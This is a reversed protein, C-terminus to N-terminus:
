DMRLVELCNPVSRILKAGKAQLAICGASGDNYVFLPSRGHQLNEVSGQWTGGTTKACQAVFCLRGLAHIYTNRRLARQATFFRDYGEDSVYLVNSREPHDQLTDPVFVIVKGGAALCAEQAITDVGRANGSVLAFGEQAIKEGIAHAFAANEAEPERSGVVAIAPELLLDPDGKCFLAPPMAEQMRELRLPYDAHGPWIPQIEPVARVYEMLRDERDLLQMVRRCFHDEYGLAQLTDPSLPCDPYPRLAEALEYYEKHTLPHVTQGLQCSLLLRSMISLEAM